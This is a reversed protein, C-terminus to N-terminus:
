VAIAVDLLDNFTLILLQSGLPTWRSYACLFLSSMQHGYELASLLLVPAARVRALISPVSLWQLVESDTWPNELHRGKHAFCRYMIICVHIPQCLKAQPMNGLYRRAFVPGM